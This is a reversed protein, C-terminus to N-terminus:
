HPLRGIYKGRVRLPVPTTPTLGGGLTLQGGGQTARLQETYLVGVGTRGVREWAATGVGLGTGHGGESAM